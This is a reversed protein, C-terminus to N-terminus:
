VLDSTPMTLHTYSVAGTRSVKNRMKELRADREEFVNKESSKEMTTQFANITDKIDDVEFDIINISDNIDIKIEENRGSNRKDIEDDLPVFVQQKQKNGINNSGAMEFGTAIVTVSIKEGLNDNKCNGWILDTGYGAEGQIYETIEGIEDM